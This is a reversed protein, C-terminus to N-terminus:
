ETKEGYFTMDEGTRAFDALVPVRARMASFASGHGTICLRYEGSNIRRNQDNVVPKPMREIRFRVGSTTCGGVLRVRYTFVNGQKNEQFFRAEGVEGREKVEIGGFRNLVFMYTDAGVPAAFLLM